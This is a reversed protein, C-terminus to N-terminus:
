VEVIDIEETSIVIDVYYGGGFSPSSCVRTYFRKNNKPLMNTRVYFLLRDQFSAMYVPQKVDVYVVGNYKISEIKNNSKSYCTRINDYMQTTVENCIQKFTQDAVASEINTVSRHRETFVLKWMDKYFPIPNNVKTCQSCEWHYDKACADAANLIENKDMEEWGNIPIYMTIDVMNIINDGSYHGKLTYANVELCHKVAAGVISLVFTDVTREAIFERIRANKNTIDKKTNEKSM